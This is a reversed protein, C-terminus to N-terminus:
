NQNRKSDHLSKTRIFTDEKNYLMERIDDDIERMVEFYKVDDIYKYEDQIKDVAEKQVKNNYNYLLDIGNVWTADEDYSAIPRVGIVGVYEDPVDFVSKCNLKDSTQLACSNCELAAISPTLNNPDIVTCKKSGNMYLYNGERDRILLVGKRSVFYYNNFHCGILDCNYAYRIFKKRLVVEHAVYCKVLMFGWRVIIIGFFYFFVINKFINDM